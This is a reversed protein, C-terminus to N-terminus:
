HTGGFRKEQKQLATADSKERREDKHEFANYLTNLVADIKEPTYGASKMGSKAQAAIINAAASNPARKMRNAYYQTAEREVAEDVHAKASENERNGTGVTLIRPALFAATKAVMAGVGGGFKTPDDLATGLSTQAPDGGAGAFAATAPNAHWLAQQLQNGFQHTASYDPAATRLPGGDRELYPAHGSLAFGLGRAAPSLVGLGVNLPGNLVEQPSIGTGKPDLMAQVGAARSGVSAPPNLTSFPIYAPVHGAGVQAAKHTLPNGLQVDFHHGPENEWTPHGTTAMNAAQALAGYGAAGRWLTNGTDALRQGISGAPLGSQGFMLKFSKPIKAANFRAFSSLGMDQLANIATGSTGRNYNGLTGNIFRALEGDTAHPERDLYKRALVLRARMDVGELNFLWHHASNLLGNREEAYAPLNNKGALAGGAISGEKGSFIGFSDVGKRADEVRAAGIKVIRRRLARVAPDDFNIKYMERGAALKGGIGPFAAVLTKALLDKEGPISGVLSTETNAHSLAEVPMGSVQLRTAAGTFQKWANGTFDSAGREHEYQRLANRVKPSMVYDQVTREGTVPDIHIRSEKYEGPLRPATTADRMAGENLLTSYVDNHYGLPIDSQAKSQVQARYDHLYNLASGEARKSSGTVKQGETPRGGTVGGLDRNPNTGLLPDHEGPPLLREIGPKEGRIIRSIGRRPTVSEIGQRAAQDDAKVALDNRFRDEDILKMYALRPQRFDQPKVGALLAAENLTPEINEQHKKLASQFWGEHEAAPDVEPRLDDAHARWNDAAIRSEQAAQEQLIAFDEAADHQRAIVNAEKQAIRAQTTLGQKQYAKVEALKTNYDSELVAMQQRTAHAHAQQALADQQKRVSEAEMNDLNLTKSFQTYQDHSLGQVVSEPEHQGILDATKQSGSARQLAEASRPFQNRIPAIPDSIARLYDERVSSLREKARGLARTGSGGGLMEDAATGAIAGAGAGLLAGRTRNKDDAMAGAVAGGAAGGLPTALQRLAPGLPNSWLAMIPRGSASYAKTGMLDALAQREEPKLTAAYDQFTKGPNKKLLGGLLKATGAAPHTRNQAAASFLENASFEAPHAPLERELNYYDKGTLATLMDRETPSLNELAQRFTEKSSGRVKALFQQAIQAGPASPYKQLSETLEREYPRYRVVPPEGITLDKPPTPAEMQQHEIDSRRPAAAEPAPTSQAPAENVIRMPQQGRVTQKFESYRANNYDAMANNWEMGIAEGEKQLLPPLTALADKNALMGAPHVGTKDYFGLAATKAQDIRESASTVEKTTLGPIRGENAGHTYGVAGGLLAGKATNAMRSLPDDADQAAGVVGGAVAGAAAPFARPFETSLREVVPNLAQYGRALGAAGEIAGAGAGGLAAGFAAGRVGGELAGQLHSGSEDGSIGEDLMGLPANIAAGEAMHRGIRKVINGSATEIAPAIAEGPLMSGAFATNAIDGLAVPAAQQWEEVTQSGPEGPQVIPPKNDIQQRIPMGTPDYGQVDSRVGGQINPNTASHWSEWHTPKHPQAAKIRKIELAVKDALEPSQQLKINEGIVDFPKGDASLGTVFQNAYEGLGHDVGGSLPSATVTGSGPMGKTGMAQWINSPDSQPIRPAPAAAMRALPDAPTKALQTLEDDEM